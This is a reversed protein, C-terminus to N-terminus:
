RPPQPLARYDGSVRGFRGDAALVIDFRAIREGRASTPDLEVPVILNQRVRPDPIGNLLPDRANEPAGAVYMQTILPEFDRGSVAYHIHPARGPYPVPKITRFRYAGDPGTLFQGYGQFHPDLPV